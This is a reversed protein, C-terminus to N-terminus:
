LGLLREPNTKVLLEMEEESLGFQLMTSIMMRFGDPPSPNLFQGFDTDLICHEAGTAKIHDVMIKPSMGGLVPMCAVFSHEIVAGMSVLEQQQQLSLKCGFGTTLPHTITVKVGLQRAGATLAYIEEVSVHGTGLVMGDKKIIELIGIVEPLLSEERDLLSIGPKAKSDSVSSTTPMWVVRAGAKAAAEVIEPNLGGAERNLSLSGILMFGPVIKNVLQALLATGYQHNKVVVARMGADRSQHALDLVDLRRERFPDPGAHVHFDIAGRMLRDIAAVFGMLCGGERDRDERGGRRM